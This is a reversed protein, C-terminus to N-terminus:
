GAKEKDNSEQIVDKVEPTKMKHFAAIFVCSITSISQVKRLKPLCIILIHNKLSYIQSGDNIFFVSVIYDLKHLAKKVKPHACVVCM